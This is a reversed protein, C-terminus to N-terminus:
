FNLASYHTSLDMITNKYVLGTDLFTTQPSTWHWAGIPTPEATDRGLFIKAHVGEFHHMKICQPARKLGVIIAVVINMVDAPRISIMFIVSQAILIKEVSFGVLFM